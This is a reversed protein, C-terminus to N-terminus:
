NANFVEGEKKAAIKKKKAELDHKAKMYLKQPMERLSNIELHACFKATDAGTEDILDQIANFQADDIPYDQFAKNGDDDEGEVVINLAAIVCYRKGYSYSSGMAQINNKGGSSDLAASFSTTVSHGAVHSLKATIVAGGGERVASDFFFQFGHAQLHPKITKMINEFSAYDFAKRKEGNPNNKDVPYEVSGDKKVVPLELQLANMAENFQQEAQKNMMREQLDLIANMKEVDVNPNEALRELVKMGEMMSFQEDSKHIINQEKHSVVPNTDQPADDITISACSVDDLLDTQDNDTM